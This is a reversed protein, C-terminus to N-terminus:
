SLCSQDRAVFHIDAFAARAKGGTQDTDSAVALQIPRGPVAGFARRFDAAVDARESVWQGARSSGTQSVIMEARDTFASKARTGVPYRNDWVYNLAADPLEAGYLQKALALKLKTGVSLARAPMDFAVYVRAAYDDGIKRRMDAGAVPADVYWRWCLVPTAKLDIELPRALLAMSRDANAEIATVNGVRAARYRTPPTKRDIQVVRWPAPPAGAETFRGVWVPALMSLFTSILM